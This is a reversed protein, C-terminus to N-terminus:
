SATWRRVKGDAVKVEDDVWGDGKRDKRVREEAIGGDLVRKELLKFGEM